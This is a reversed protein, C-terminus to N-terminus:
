DWLYREDFAVRHKKLLARLEDAQLFFARNKTSFVVHLLVGALSQAV